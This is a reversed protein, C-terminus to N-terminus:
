LVTSGLWWISVAPMVLMLWFRSACNTGLQGEVWNGEEGAGQLCMPAKLVSFLLPGPFLVPLKLSRFPAFLLYYPKMGWVRPAPLPGLLGVETLFPCLLAQALLLCM